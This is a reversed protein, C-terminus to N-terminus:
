SATSVFMTLGGRQKCLIERTSYNGIRGTRFNDPGKRTLMWAHGASTGLFPCRFRHGGKEHVLVCSEHYTHFQGTAWILHSHLDFPANASLNVHREYGVSRAPSLPAKMFSPAPSPQRFYSDKNNFFSFLVVLIMVQSSFQECGIRLLSVLLHRDMKIANLPCIPV